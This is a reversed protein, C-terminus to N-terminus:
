RSRRPAKAAAPKRAPQSDGLVEFKLDDWWCKGPTAQYGARAWVTYSDKPVNWEVSYFTWDRTGSLADGALSGDVGYLGTAYISLYASTENVNELKCWGSLRVRKGSLNRANFVQCAAQYTQFAPRQQTTLLASFRGNHANTSDPEIQSGPTPPMSFEWDDFPREFGPNALMNRGLAIPAPLRAPSATLTADDFWVQGPGYIGFRVLILDTTPPVYVRVKRETWDSSESSFYQRAWGLELQPDDAFKYGLATRAQERSINKERAYNMVTDRYCQVMVYGRGSLQASRTWVSLELDKGVYRGAAPVVQNWNHWIPIVDGANVISASRAGSRKMDPDWYFLVTPVGAVTTDWGTPAFLGGEEFGGNSLLNTAPRGSQAAAPSPFAAQSFWGALSLLSVAAFSAINRTM